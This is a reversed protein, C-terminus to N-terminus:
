PPSKLRTTRPTLQIRWEDPTLPTDAIRMLAAQYLAYCRGTLGCRLILNACLLM